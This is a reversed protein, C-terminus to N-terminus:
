GGGGAGVEVGTGSGVAVGDCDTFLEGVIVAFFMAKEGVLTVTFDPAWTVIM